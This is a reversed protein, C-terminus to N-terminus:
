GGAHEGPHEADAAPMREHGLEDREAQGFVVREARRQERDDRGCADPGPPLRAVAVDAPTGSHSESEAAATAACPPTENASDSESTVSRATEEGAARARRPASRQDARRRSM